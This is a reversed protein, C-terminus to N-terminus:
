KEKSRRAILQNLAAKDDDSTADPMNAAGATVPAQPAQAVAAAQRPAAAPSTPGATSGQSRGPAPSTEASPSRSASATSSASRAPAAAPSPAPGLQVTAAAKPRLAARGSAKITSTPPPTRKASAASPAPSKRYMGAIREAVTRGGVPVTGLIVGVIVAVFSYFLFKLLGFM